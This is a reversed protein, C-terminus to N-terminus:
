PFGPLAKAPLPQLVAGPESRVSRRLLVPCPAHRIVEDAISGLLVRALGTRGHTTMCLLSAGREQVYRLLEAGARGELVVASAAVGESSLRFKVGELYPRPNEVIQVGPIEGLGSMTIAPLVSQVLDVSAKLRRALPVVDQLIQEGRPSGDLAVVLHDWTRVPTGPRTVLIPVDLRRVVEETVSGMLIRKLGGRGHTAMVVLDTRNGLRVIEDAPRGPRIELGANVGNERLAACAKAVRDPARVPEEPHETVYLVTVEPNDSRVVPMMAAFAHESETSGDTTVLIREIKRM